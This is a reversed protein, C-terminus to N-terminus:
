IRVNEIFQKTRNFIKYLITGFIKEFFPPITINPDFIINFHFLIKHQTLIHCTCTLDQVNMLEADGPIFEPKYNTISEGKFLIQNNDTFKKMNMFYFKQSLGLDEFLDKILFVITVEYDNKKQMEVKEYIDPNLDYILKILSFDIIKPLIVNHNEMMFELKYQNKKIRTFKFGDKDFLITEDM